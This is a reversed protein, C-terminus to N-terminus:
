VDQREDHGGLNLTDGAFMIDHAGIKDHLLRRV